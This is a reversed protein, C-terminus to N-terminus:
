NIMTGMFYTANASGIVNAATGATEISCRFSYASTGTAVDDIKINAAAFNTGNSNSVSKYLVGDKFIYAICASGAAITGNAVYAATMAVKGAPPTWEGSTTNFNSGIDYVETSFTILTVASSAVGAQDVGNKHASFSSWGAGTGDRVALVSPARSSDTGTQMEATTALEVIGGSTTTAATIGLTNRATAPDRAADFQRRFEVTM